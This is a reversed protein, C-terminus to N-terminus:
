GKRQSHAHPANLHHSADGDHGQLDFSVDSDGSFNQPPGNLFAPFTFLLEGRSGIDMQAVGQRTLQELLQQSEETTLPTHLAVEAATIRGSRQQALTLVAREIQQYDHKPAANPRIYWAGFMMGLGGMGLIAFLVGMILPGSLDGSTTFIDNLAAAVCPFSVATMMFGTIVMFIRVPTNSRTPPPTHHTHQM